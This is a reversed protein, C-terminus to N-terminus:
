QIDDYKDNVDKLVESMDRDKEHEMEFGWQEALLSLVDTIFEAYKKDNLERVYPIRHHAKILIKVVEVNNRTPEIGLHELFQPLIVGHLLRHQGLSM